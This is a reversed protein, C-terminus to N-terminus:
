VVVRMMTGASSQADRQRLVRAVNAAASVHLVARRAAALAAAHDHHCNKQCAMM